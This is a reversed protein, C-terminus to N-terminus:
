KLAEMGQGMSIKLIDLPGKGEQNDAWRMQTCNKYHYEAM